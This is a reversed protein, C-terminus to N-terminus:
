GPRLVTRRIAAAPVDVADGRGSPPFPAPADFHTAADVIVPVPGAAMMNEAHMDTGGTLRLVALWHGVNRYFAALEADDACYRHGVFEAWGYGDRALTRPVRIREAPAPAGPFDAYLEDLLAGLAIDTESPRPKYMVSGGAFDARSVTLGGRHSDGAGFVVDRLEGVPAQLLPRLLERDAALRGAFGATAAVSLRAVSAVRAGLSPYRDTLRDLYGEEGAQEIFAAWTRTDSDPAAPTGSHPRARLGSVDSDAGAGGRGGGAAMRLAHLEILFLRSLKAHLSQLLATHGAELVVDREARGVADIAGLRRALEDRWPRAINRVPRAFWDAEPRKEPAAESM